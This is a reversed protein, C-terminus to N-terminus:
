QSNRSSGEGREFGLSGVIVPPSQMEEDRGGDGGSQSVSGVAAEATDVAYALKGAAAATLDYVRVAGDACGVALESCHNNLAVATVAMRPPAAGLAPDDRPHLPVTGCASLHDGTGCALPLSSTRYSMLAHVSKPVDLVSLPCTPPPVPGGAPHEAAATSPLSWVHVSSDGGGSFLVPAPERGAAPPPRLSLGAIRPAHLPPAFALAYLPSSRAHGASLLKGGASLLKGGAEGRADAGPAAPPAPPDFPSHMVTTGDGYEAVIQPSAGNRSIAPGNVLLRVVPSPCPPHLSSASSSRSLAGTVAGRGKKAGASKKARKEMAKVKAKKLASMRLDLDERHRNPFAVTRTIDRQFTDCSVVEITGASTGVLVYEGCVVGCTLTLSPPFPCSITSTLSPPSSTDVRLLAPPSSVLVVVLDAPPALSKSPAPASRSPLRRPPLLTVTESAFVASFPASKLRADGADQRDLNFGPSASQTRALVASWYWVEGYQLSVVSRSAPLWAFSFARSGLGTDNDAGARPDKPLSSTHSRPTRLLDNLRPTELLDEMDLKSGDADGAGEEEEEEEDGNVVAALLERAEDMEGDIATGQAMDSHVARSGLLELAGEESVQLLHLRHHADAGSRFTEALAVLSSDLGCFSLTTTV